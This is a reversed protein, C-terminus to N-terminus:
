ETQNIVGRRAFLSLDFVSFLKTAASPLFYVVQRGHSWVGPHCLKAFRLVYTQLCECVQALLGVSMHLTSLASCGGKALTKVGLWMFESLFTRTGGLALSLSLETFCLGHSAYPTV